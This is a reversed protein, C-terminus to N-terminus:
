SAGGEAGFLWRHVHDTVARLRADDVRERYVADISADSHGMVLRIAVIDLTGDAVTRFVHRLTYFGIGKRGNIGVDHMLKRAAVSVPNAIGRCLWPRGRSTLFVLGKADDTKPTPREAIAARLAAISEPWLPCRRKIGTKPRAYSIWGRELDVKVLPLTACDHNGFGCNLGLLFMAKLPVPAADLLLQCEEKTLLREGNRERENRLVGPRPKKFGPGFHMPKDIVRAEFSWNFLTQVKQVENSLRVPGYQKALVSRLVDFDDPVLDDVLRESGFQAALRLATAKYEEFMRRGIDGAELARLKATLFQNCLSKVTLGDADAASRPTRGAKLDPAQTRYLTLAAQWGAEYPLLVLKAKEVHAWRGFHRIKGNIKKSWYGLTHPYLPFEPYPKAPKAPREDAKGSDAAPSYQKSM